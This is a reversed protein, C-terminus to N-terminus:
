DDRNVRERLKQELSAIQAELSEKEGRNWSLKRSKVQKLRAKAADVKSRLEAVEKARIREVREKDLVIQSLEIKEGIKSLLQKEDFPPVGDWVHVVLHSAYTEPMTIPPSGLIRRVIERLLRDVNSPYVSSKATVWYGERYKAAYDRLGGTVFDKGFIGSEERIEVAIKVSHGNSSRFTGVAM